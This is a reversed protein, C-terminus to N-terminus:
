NITLFCRCNVDLEAVGFMGPAPASSEGIYFDADIPVTVGELWTHEERVRPDQMTHWTKSQGGNEKATTFVAENYDRHTETEAVRKISEFDNLDAYENLREEFDKGDIKRYIAKRMEEANPEINKGLADSVDEVGWIYAYILYDLIGDIMQQKNKSLDVGQWVDVYSNIEDFNLRTNPM